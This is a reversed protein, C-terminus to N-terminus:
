RRTGKSLEKLVWSRFEESVRSNEARIHFPERAHKKYVDVEHGNWVLTWYETQRYGKKTDADVTMRRPTGLVRALKSAPVDLSAGYFGLM